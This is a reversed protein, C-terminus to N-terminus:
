ARLDLTPEPEDARCVFFRPHLTTLMVQTAGLSIFLATGVRTSQLRSHAALSRENFASIRSFTRQIGRERMLRNAEDWLKAFVFGLRAAPEIYVDYDWACASAPLPHYTCRVEDDSYAGLHLWLFARFQQDVEAVLCLSGAAFRREIVDAARPGVSQSEFATLVRIVINTGRGAPLLRTELVPQSMLYYKRIAIRGRSVFGLVRGVEYVLTNTLGVRAISATLKSIPNM